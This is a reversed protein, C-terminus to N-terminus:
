DSRYIANNVTLEFSPSFSFDFSAMTTTYQLSHIQAMAVFRNEAELRPHVTNISHTSYKLFFTRNQTIRPKTLIYFIGNIDILYALLNLSVTVLMEIVTREIHGNQYKGFEM